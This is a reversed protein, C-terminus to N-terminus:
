WSHVALVRPPGSNGSFVKTSLVIQINKNLWEGPAQDQVARFFEPNTLLEGAAVTGFGALGGAVVVMRGTTPDLVRSILAFDETLALYPTAYNVKWKTHGPDHRDRISFDAGNREFTYRMSGTLRMTWDNNFAGILVVSGQRLDEFTTSLEGRVRFEEGKSQLLGALRSVTTFEPLAVNQFGLMYLQYLTATGPAPDKTGSPLGEPDVDAPISPSYSLRARQGACLLVPQRSILVPKWFQDLGSPRMWPKLWLGLLLVWPVAFLIWPLHLIRRSPQTLEATTVAVTTTEPKVAPFHFEPMYSGAPMDIRVEHEHGAEHYFQAIRKRIEGATTRVVPDLNTDYDPDRGFVEVGLTREKLHLVGDLSREAVFRLLNPYRKSNRFLPHALIRELQRRIEERDADTEIGRVAPPAGTIEM